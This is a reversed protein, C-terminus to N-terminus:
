SVGADQFLEIGAPPDTETPNVKLPAGGALGVLSTTFPIEMGRETTTGVGDGVGVGEGVGVADGVGTGDGVGTAVGTEVGVGAGLGPTEGVGVGVGTGPAIVPTLARVSM